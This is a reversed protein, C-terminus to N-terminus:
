FRKSRPCDSWLYNLISRFNKEKCEWKLSLISKKIVSFGKSLVPPKKNGYPNIGGAQDLLLIIKHTRKSDAYSFLIGIRSLPSPLGGGREKKPLIGVEGWYESLITEAMHGPLVIAMFLGPKAISGM